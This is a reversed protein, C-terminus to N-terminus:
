DTNEPDEHIDIITYFPGIPKYSIMIRNFSKINLNKLFEIITEPRSNILNKFSNLEDTIM